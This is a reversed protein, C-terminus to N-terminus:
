DDGRKMRVVQTVVLVLKPIFLGMIVAWQNFVMPLMFGPVCFVIYIGYKLFSFRLMSRAGGSRARFAKGAVHLKVTFATTEALMGLVLGLAVTRFIDVPVVVGAAGLMAMVILCPKLVERRVIRDTDFPDRELPMVMLGSLQESDGM